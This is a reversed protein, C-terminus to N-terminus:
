RDFPMDKAAVVRPLIFPIGTGILTWYTAGSAGTPGNTATATLATLASICRYVNVNGDSVTTGVSYATGLTYARPANAYSRDIVAIFRRKALRVLATTNTALSPDDVVNVADYWDGGNNFVHGSTAGNITNPIAVTLPGPYTTKQVAEIYGYVVFTDSRVTCYNMINNFYGNAPTTGTSTANGPGYQGDLSLPTANNVAALQVVYLLEGLSRIGKGPYTVASTFVKATGSNFPAALSATSIRDRYALIYQAMKQSMGPIGMLVPGTATNVNIRGPIRLKNIDTAGGGINITSDTSRDTM